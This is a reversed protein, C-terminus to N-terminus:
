ILYGDTSTTGTTELYRDCIALNQDTMEVIRVSKGNVKKKIPVMRLGHGGLADGHARLDGLNDEGTLVPLGLKLRIHKRLRETSVGKNDKLEKMAIAINHCRDARSREPVYPM